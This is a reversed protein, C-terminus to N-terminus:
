KACSIDSIQEISDEINKIQMALLRKNMALTGVQSVSLQRLNMIPDYLLAEVLSRSMDEIIEDRENNESEGGKDVESRMRSLAKGVEIQRIREAKRYLASALPEVQMRRLMLILQGLSYQAVKDAKRTEKARSEIAQRAIERLDDIDSLILGPLRAVSRDVNRPEGLDIVVLHSAERQKMVRSMLPLTILFHPASTAVVVADASVLFNEMSEFQIATAGLGKATEVARSYTRNAVFILGAKRTCLAKGVIEAAEGAGVILIKKNTLDQMYKSILEVAVSGISTSGENIATSSRVNKGVQLTYEMVKNLVPGITGNERCEKFAERIQGLIQDEGVILSELGAATRLLHLLATSGSASEILDILHSDVIGKEHLWFTLLTELMLRPEVNRAVAYIEIRNCTQILLCEDIGPISKIKKVVSKSAFTFAELASISAKKHTIRINLIRGVLENEYLEEQSRLYLERRLKILM